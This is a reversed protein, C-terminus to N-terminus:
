EVTFGECVLDRLRELWHPDALVVTGILGGTRSMSTFVLLEASGKPDPWVDVLASDNVRHLTIYRRSASVEVNVKDDLREGVSRSLEDANDLLVQMIVQPTNM